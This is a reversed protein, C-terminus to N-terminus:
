ADGVRMSSIANEAACGVDCGDSALVSTFV